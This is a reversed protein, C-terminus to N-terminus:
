RARDVETLVEALWSRWPRPQRGIARSLDSADLVSYSPRLAAAGYHKWSVPTIPVPKGLLGQQLGIEQIATAFDYWSATGEDVWHYIGGLEAREACAWTTLALSRAATPVGIQDNVVRLNRATQLASLITRLFNRARSAYLWSSRIILFRSSSGEVEREGALKSAGYVNIPNPPTEPRYPESSEGDFVYDTSIHIIRAGLRESAISVNAVGTANIAHAREPVREAADVATYAAANIVVDPRHTAMARDVAARDTIDCERHNLGVVEFQPPATRLLEVGLQGAAGTVLARV